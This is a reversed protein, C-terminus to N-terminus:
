SCETKFISISKIWNVYHTMAIFINTKYQRSKNIREVCCQLNCCWMGPNERPTEGNVVTLVKQNEEGGSSPTTTTDCINNEGHGAGEVGNSM